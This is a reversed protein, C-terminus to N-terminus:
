KIEGLEQVEYVFQKTYGRWPLTVYKEHYLLKVRQSNDMANNLDKLVKEDVVSFEWVNSVGIDNTQDFGGINLQGENTKFVVGTKSLKMLVGSRAGESFNANIVFYTGGILLITVIILFIVFNKMLNIQILSLPIMEYNNM